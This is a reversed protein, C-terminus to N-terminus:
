SSVVRGAPVADRVAAVVPRVGALALVESPGLLVALGGAAETFGALQGNNCCGWGRRGGLAHVLHVAPQVPSVGTVGGLVAVPAFLVTSEETTGALACRGWGRRTHVLVRLASLVFPAHTIVCLVIEKDLVVTHFEAVSTLVVFELVRKLNSNM